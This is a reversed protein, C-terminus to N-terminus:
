QYLSRAESFLQPAINQPNWTGAPEGGRGEKVEERAGPIRIHVYEMDSDMAYGHGYLGNYEYVNGDGSSQLATKLSNTVHPIGARDVYAYGLGNHVTRFGHERDEGSGDDWLVNERNSDAAYLRTGGPLVYGFYRTAHPALEEGEYALPTSAYRNAAGRAAGHDFGLERLSATLEKAVEEKAGEEESQASVGSLNNLVHPANMKVWQLIDGASRLDQPSYMPVVFSEGQFQVTQQQIGRAQLLESLNNYYNSSNQYMVGNNTIILRSGRLPGNHYTYSAIRSSPASASKPESSAVVEQEQNNKVIYDVGWQLSVSAIDAKEGEEVNVGNIKRALEIINKHGFVNSSALGQEQNEDNSQDMIASANSGLVESMQGSIGWVMAVVVIFMGLKSINGLHM